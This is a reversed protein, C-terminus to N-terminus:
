LITIKKHDNSVAALSKKMMFLMTSITFIIIDLDCMIRNIDDLLVKYSFGEGLWGECFFNLSLGDIGFGLYCLTLSFCCYDL